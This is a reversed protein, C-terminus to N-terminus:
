EGLIHVAAVYLFTGASFLLAVGTWRQVTLHRLPDPVGGAAPASLWLVGYTALAAVPAALSFYLVHRRVQARARGEGLLVSALGLAAPAKHLLLAVFVVMQLSPGAAASAASASATGGAAAHVSSAAGLAIGDAASHIVLGITTAPTAAAAPKAAFARVGHRPPSTDILFMMVFGLILTTGIYRKVNFVADHDTHPHDHGAHADDADDDDDDHVDDDVEAADAAPHERKDLAQRRHRHAAGAAAASAANAASPSPAARHALLARQVGYLADVGEPLIVILATGILLGAGFTSILRLKRPSLRMILPANGALFSGSLMALCLLAL